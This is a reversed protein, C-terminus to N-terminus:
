QVVFGSIEQTGSTVQRVTVRVECAHKATLDYHTRIDELVRALPKKLDNTDAILFGGTSRALEAMSAQTNAARVAYQVYDDHFQGGVPSNYTALLM